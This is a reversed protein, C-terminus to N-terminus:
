RRRKQFPLSTVSEKKIQRPSVGGAALALDEQLSRDRRGEAGVKGVEKRWLRERRQEVEVESEFHRGFLGDDLSEFFSRDLPSSARM